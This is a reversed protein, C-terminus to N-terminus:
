DLRGAIRTSIVSWGPRSSIMASLLLERIVVIGRDAVHRGVLAESHSELVEGEDLGVDGVHDLLHAKV